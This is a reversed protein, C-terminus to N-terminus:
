ILNAFKNIIKLSIKKKNSKRKKVIKGNTTALNDTLDNFRREKEEPDKIYKIENIIKIVEIIKDKHKDLYTPNINQLLMDCKFLKWPIYGIPIYNQKNCWTKFKRIQKSRKFKQTKINYKQQTELLKIKKLEDPYIRPNIYYAEVENNKLMKMVINFYREECSGFDLLKESGQLGRNFIFRRINKEYNTDGLPEYIYNEFSIYIFIGGLAIPKIYEKKIIDKNYEAKDSAHYDEDYISNYKWDKYSCKRFSANVFLAIRIDCLNVLDCLGSLIQPLYEKPIYGQPIRSLPCKYELLVNFPQYSIQENEDKKVPNIIINQEESLNTEKFPYCLLDITALGDPSYRHHPVAGQVSGTNKIKCSMFIEVLKQIQPEFVIGWRTYKNDIYIDDIGSRQKIFKNINCYKNDGAIISIESGGISGMNKKKDTGYKLKFWEDSGQKPSNNYMKIVEDIKNLKSLRTLNNIKNM